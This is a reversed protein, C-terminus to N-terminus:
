TNLFPPPSSNPLFEIWKDDHVNGCGENVLWVWRWVILNSMANNGM